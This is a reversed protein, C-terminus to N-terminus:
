HHQPPHQESFMDKLAQIESEHLDPHWIDFLLIVRDKTHGDHWAEHDYSDDFVLCQGETWECVDSGVRLGCGGEKPVVIPLHCRLRINMPASHAKISSQPKLSSFFSYGFPVQTMLNPIDALLASTQPFAQKFKPQIKGKLMYANWHWEGSHLQHEKQNSADLHYDNSPSSM